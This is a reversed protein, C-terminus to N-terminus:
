LGSFYHNECDQAWALLRLLVQSGELFEHTGGWFEWFSWPPALRLWPWSVVVDAEAMQLSTDKECPPVLSSYLPPSLAM